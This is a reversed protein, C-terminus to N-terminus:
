PDDSATTVRVELPDSTSAALLFWARGAELHWFGLKGHEDGEVVPAQDQFVAIRLRSDVTPKKTFTIAYDGADAIEVRYAAGNTGDPLTWGDAFATSTADLSLKKAHEEMTAVILPPAGIRHVSKIDYYAGHSGAHGPVYRYSFAFRGECRLNTAKSGSPMVFKAATEATGSEDNGAITTEVADLEMEVAPEWGCIAIRLAQDLGSPMGRAASSLNGKIARKPSSCAIAGACLFLLFAERSLRRRPRRVNV